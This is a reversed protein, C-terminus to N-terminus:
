DNLTTKGGDDTSVFNPVVCFWKWEQAKELMQNDVPGRMIALHANIKRLSGHRVVYAVNGWNHDTADPSLTHINGSWPVTKPKNNYLQLIDWDAPLRAVLGQIATVCNTPLVADDECILHYDNDGVPSSELHRMLSAHSLYCGIVGLRRGHEYKEYVSRPVNYKLRDAPGLTKGNVGPWRTVTLGATSAMRMFQAYRDESKDMNIVHTSVLGGRSAYYLICIVFAVCLLVGVYKM